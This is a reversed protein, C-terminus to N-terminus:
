VAATECCKFTPLQAVFSSGLAEFAACPKQMGSCSSNLQQKAELISNFLQLKATCSNQLFSAIKHRQVASCTEYPPRRGILTQKQILAGFTNKNILMGMGYLAGMGINYNVLTRTHEDEKLQECVFPLAM